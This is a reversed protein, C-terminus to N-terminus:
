GFDLVGNPGLVRVCGEIKMDGFCNQTEKYIGIM